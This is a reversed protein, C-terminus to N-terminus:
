YFNEFSISDPYKKAETMKVGKFKNIKMPKINMVPKNEQLDFDMSHCSPCKVNDMTQTEQKVKFEKGCNMCYCDVIKYLKFSDGRLEVEGKEEKFEYSKNKLMDMFSKTQWISHINHRIGLIPSFLKCRSSHKLRRIAKEKIQRARERTLQFKQAIDDFTHEPEFFGCWLLLVDMERKSVTVLARFLEITLSEKLLGYDARSSDNHDELRDMYRMELKEDDPYYYDNTFYSNVDPMDDEIRIIDSDDYFRNAKYISELTNDDYGMRFIVDEAILDRSEEVEMKMLEKHMKSVHTRLYPYLRVTNKYSFSELIRHKISWVAYSIFKFGRTPDYTNLATILGENGASVVDDFMISKERLTSTYFKKAVSVVFRLNHKIIKDKAVQDGDSVKRFLSVEEEISLPEYKAIEKLYIKFSQSERPTISIGKNLHVGRMIFARIRVNTYKEVVGSNEDGKKRYWAVM